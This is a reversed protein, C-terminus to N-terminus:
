LEWLIRLQKVKEVVFQYYFQFPFIEGKVTDRLDNYQQEHFQKVEERSINGLLYLPVNKIKFFEKIMAQNESENFDLSPDLQNIVMYIDYFDRPRPSRSTRNAVAYEEMQQCIARLKEFVIMRPSYIRIIFDHFDTTESPSVFEYKSIDVKIIKKGGSVPLSERRLKDINEQGIKKFNDHEIVKFVVRYGGWAATQEPDKNRPQEELKMDFIKYGNELFTEDLSRNLKEEIEEISFGFDKFDKEMSVDIDISARSNMKYALELANGGKLVLIDMLDDDSFLSIITLNRLEEMFENYQM